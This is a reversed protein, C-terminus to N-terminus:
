MTVYDQRIRVSIDVGTPRKFPDDLWCQQALRLLPLWPQYKPQALQQTDPRKGNMVATMTTDVSIGRWPVQRSIIEWILIGFAYVDRSHLPYARSQQTITGRMSRLLEPAAFAVSIGDMTSFQFQNVGRKSMANVSAFSFDGLVLHLRDPRQDVFINEPKIDNHSIEKAHLHILANILDLILSNLRKPMWDTDAISIARDKRHILDAFDGHEYAPMVISKPVM